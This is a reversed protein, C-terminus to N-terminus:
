KRRYYKYPGDGMVVVDQKHPEVTLPEVDKRVAKVEWFFETDDCVFGGAQVVCFYGDVLDTVALYPVGVSGVPGESIKGKDILRANTEMSKFHRKELIPTVMISRDKVRTLAEFYDPLKVWAVGSELRGRGRYFVANEPGELTTHILHHEPKVPHDIIFNKVNTTDIWMRYTGDWSWTCKNSGNHAFVMGGFGSGAGPGWNGWLGYGPAYIDGNVQVNLSSPQLVLDGSLSGLYNSAGGGVFLRGAVWMHNDTRLYTDGSVHRYLTVDSPIGLRLIGWVETYVADMYIRSDGASTSFIGAVSGVTGDAAEGSATFGALGRSSGMKGSQLAISQRGAAGTIIISQLAGPQTEAALGSYMVLATTSLFLNFGLEMRDGSAATKYLTGTITGGTVTLSGANSVKFPASAFAANGLWMDGSTNVHFSSADAGGIDISGGSITGNFTAAGTAADLFVTQVSAAYLRLGGSNILLGTTPPSGVLISGSGSITLNATTISGSTLKNVNLNAIKGDTVALTGIKAEVVALAAIQASDVALLGIKANTIALNAIDTTGVEATTVSTPTSNVYPGDNGSADVAQVRAFKTVATAYPGFSTISANVVKTEVGATFGADNALQVRYTGKGEGTDVGVLDTWTVIITRFGATLVVGTVAAPITSDVGVAVDVWGLAVSRVGVRDISFVRFGYTTNAELREVRMETSGTTRVQALQYVGTVKKAIEVDYQVVQDYNPQAASPATWDLDVYLNDFFDGPTGILATPPPIIGTQIVVETPGLIVGTPFENTLPGTMVDPSTVAMEVEYLRQDLVQIADGIDDVEIWSM